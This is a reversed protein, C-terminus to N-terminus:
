IPVEALCRIIKICGDVLRFFRKDEPWGEKKWRGVPYAECYSYGELVLRRAVSEVLAPIEIM